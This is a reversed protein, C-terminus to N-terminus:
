RTPQSARYGLLCLAGGIVILLIEDLAILLPPPLPFLVHGLDLVSPVINLVGCVIALWGAVRPWKFSVPIAALPLFIAALYIVMVFPPVMSAPRTELGLEPFNPIYTLFDVLLLAIFPRRSM